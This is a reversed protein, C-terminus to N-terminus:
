YEAEVELLGTGGPDCQYAFREIREDAGSRRITRTENKKIKLWTEQVGNIQVKVTDPGYNIILCSIWPTHPWDDFLNIFQYQDTVPLERTDVKGKFHERELAKRIKVLQGLSGLQVVAQIVDPRVVEKGDEVVRMMPMDLDRPSIISVSKQSAPKHPEPTQEPEPQEPQEPKAPKGPDLFDSLEDVWSELPQPTELERPM